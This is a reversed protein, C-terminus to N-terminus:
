GLLNASKDCVVHEQIDFPPRVGGNPAQHNSYALIQQVVQKIKGFSIVKRVAGLNSLACNAAQAPADGLLQVLSGRKMNGIEGNVTM